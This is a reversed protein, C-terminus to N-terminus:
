AYVSKLREIAADRAVADITENDDGFGFNDDPGNEQVVIGDRRAVVSLSGYNVSYHVDRQPALWVIQGRVPVVSADSFLARAGYGTCNILVPESLRRFDRATEFDAAEFRGGAIQFDTELRHSYDAVNFTLRPARRVIAANFPHSGPPMEVSRPVADRIRGNLSIFESEPPPPPLPADLPAPLPPNRCTYNDLWEVPDGALGVFAEHMQLSLRAMREWRVPFDADVDATKAVRSDPSWVGTARASRVFPFRERAYITVDAGARQATIATTLGIAGAGIVGIRRPRHTMALAVADAASGWSLSWGSGGHGYNHVVIKRGLRQAEIRPGAGRFPRLCVTTRHIAAPDVRVRILDPTEARAAAPLGLLGAGLGGRLVTRRHM